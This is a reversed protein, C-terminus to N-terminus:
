YIVTNDLLHSYQRIFNSIRFFSFAVRLFSISIDYKERVNGKKVLVGAGGRGGPGSGAKAKFLIRGHPDLYSAPNTIIIQVIILLVTFQFCLFYIDGKGIENRKALKQRFLFTFADGWLVM